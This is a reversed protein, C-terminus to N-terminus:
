RELFANERWISYNKRFTSLDGYVEAFSPVKSSLGAAVGNWTKKLAALIEPSFRRIEVGNEKVFKHMFSFQIAEGEAISGAIAADCRRSLLFDSAM